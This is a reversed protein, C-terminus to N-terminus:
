FSCSRSNAGSYYYFIRFNVIAGRKLVEGVCPLAIIPGCKEERNRNLDVAPRGEPRRANITNPPTPTDVRM